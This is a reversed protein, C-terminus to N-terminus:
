ISEVRAEFESEQELSVRYYALELSLRWAGTSQANSLKLETKLSMTKRSLSEM